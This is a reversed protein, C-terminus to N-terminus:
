YPGPDWGYATDTIAIELLNNSINLLHIYLTLNAHYGAPRKQPFHPMSGSIKQFLGGGLDIYASIEVEINQDFIDKDLLYALASGFGGNGGLPDYLGPPVSSITHSTNVKSPLKVRVVVDRLEQTLHNEIVLGNIYGAMAQSHMLGLCIMVFSFIFKIKFNM